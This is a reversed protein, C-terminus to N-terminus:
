RLHVVQGHIDYAGKVSDKAISSTITAVNGHASFTSGDSLGISNGGTCYVTNTRWAPVYPENWVVQYPWYWPNSTERIVEKEKIVMVVSTEKAKPDKEQREVIRDIKGEKLDDIDMKLIKEEEKLKRIQCQVDDLKELTKKVIEKVEKVQNERVEKEAQEYGEKVVEKNM